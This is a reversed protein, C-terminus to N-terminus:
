AIPEVSAWVTALERWTDVIVEGSEDQSKLPYELTVRHRLRGAQM